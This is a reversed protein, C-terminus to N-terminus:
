LGIVVGALFLDEKTELQLLGDYKKCVAQVSSIGLGHGPEEKQSMLRGDAQRLVGDFRNDVALTLSTEDGRACIRVMRKEQPLKEQAEMANQLLNGIMVCLDADSIGPLRPLSMEVQLTFGMEKAWSDHYAILSDAVLNGTVPTAADLVNWSQIYKEASETDGSRVIAALAARHHRLDHRIHRIEEMQAVLNDYYSKQMGVQQNALELDLRTIDAAKQSKQIWVASAYVGYMALLLFMRSLILEWGVTYHATTTLCLMTVSAGVLCLYRWVRVDEIDRFRKELWRVMKVMPVYAILHQGLMLNVEWAVGPIHASICLAFTDLSVSVTFLTLYVLTHKSFQEKVLLQSTVFAFLINIFRYIPYQIQAQWFFFWLATVAATVATSVAVSLAFPLRLRDRFILFRASAMMGFLLVNYILRIEM